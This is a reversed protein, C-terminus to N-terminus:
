AADDGQNEQRGSAAWRWVTPVSVGYREAVQRVSPMGKLPPLDLGQSKEWEALESPDWRTVGGSLRHGDPFPIKSM